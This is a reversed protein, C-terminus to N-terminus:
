FSYHLDMGFTRPADFYGVTLYGFGPGFSIASSQHYENTLNRVWFNLQLNEMPETLVLLDTTANSDIYTLDTRFDKSNYPFSPHEDVRTHDLRVRYAGFDKELSAYLTKEPSYPINNVLFGDQAIQNGTAESDLTSFNVRLVTSDNLMAMSEIELGSISASNNLVQSAAAADATFYSIQMDEHTNDFYAVNLMMRNDFYRGKLGLEKSEVTEPAYPKLSEFPTPAEANIGGAKFGEAVKLYVNTNESFDHELIFTTTTDDFSGNGTQGFIGVYEKFGTKDEETKRAGITLDWKEAFAWTIQGFIAEAESTGSYNQVIASGGLFYSQPNSTYADDELMYYGVVYDMNETSGSLQLEITDAEYDTDRLTEAINFPSGDLDLRDFWRTERKSWIAKLTGIGIDRAVTLSTGKVVSLESTDTDIHAISKRDRNAFLEIPAVNLGGTLPSPGLGFATSWNPITYTLQAFPPINKQDTKDTTFTVSTKDGEYLYTFKYGTSDIADLKDNSTVTNPVVGDFAQYPSDYVRVYGARQKKNVVLKAFRNEGLGFDTIFQAQRLGYNGLTLKSSMGEGSPKKSILNIAGGLTNRGYLTGQPGRLIEVRELDVVDFISGQGKGLYVGDLYMGVTPEWTIAPNTTSGGRIAITAATNNSPTNIIHVNPAMGALDVVNAIDLDEITSATLATIAIPADQLSEEKKQATVVVEELMSSQASANFAFMLPILFIINKLKNMFIGWFLHILPEIIVFISM